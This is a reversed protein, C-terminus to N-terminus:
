TLLSKFLLKKFRFANVAINDMPSCLPHGLLLHQPYYLAYSLGLGVTMSTM